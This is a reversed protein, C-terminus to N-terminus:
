ILTDRQSKKTIKNATATSLLFILALNLVTCKIEYNEPRHRVVDGSVWTSQVRTVIYNFHVFELKGGNM